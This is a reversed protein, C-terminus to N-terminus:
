VNALKLIKRKRLDNIQKNIIKILKMQIDTLKKNTLLYNLIVTTEIEYKEKFDSDANELDLVNALRDCLKLNLVDEDMNLMKNCLYNTKGMIKKKTKDSTVGDVLYAVFDGFKDRIEDITTDTDEVVDHLYSATIYENIKPHVSFFESVIEAVKVPHNIYPSGDKRVQGKHKQKAYIYAENMKNYPTIIHYPRNEKIQKELDMDYNFINWIEFEPNCVYQFLVNKIDENRDVYRVIEDPIFESRDIIIILHSHKNKNGKSLLYRRREKEM